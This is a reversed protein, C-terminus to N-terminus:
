HPAGMQLANIGAEPPLKASVEDERVIHPTVFIVLEEKTKSKFTGTFLKGVWPLDGLLPVKTENKLNETQILGGLVITTGDHVRVLTSAQKTDLIPATANGDPSTEQGVLKTLVPSIDLSVWDNDSIQPTISLITGVTITTIQQGSATQNGSQSQSNQFTQAFFPTETGVKILATQNNLTRIRPQSLVEVRGQQQLANIAAATNFNQFVLTNPNGGINGTGVTRNLGGLASDQLAAAGNAIPLTAGGFGLTGGYARALHVWDIGFQFQDNLTVDYLEAEIDVQRHVSQGIARLFSEVNKLVSPRDSVQIIGATTNVALSHKGFESLILGLGEKLDKWFDINNDATLNVSSGSQGAGGPAGGGGGGGGGAGATASNLTASSSGRGNRAMRLYDVIFSRTEFNRVRILGDEEHWSCDSADLLARMMQELPLNRVNLTVTGTVDTDPVINLGNAQAFMALATKLELQDAQFSYCTKGKAHANM